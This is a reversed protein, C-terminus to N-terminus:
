NNWFQHFENVDWLYFDIKQWVKKRYTNRHEVWNVYLCTSTYKPEVLDTGIYRCRPSSIILVLLKHQYLMTIYDARAVFLLLVSHRHNETSKWSNKKTNLPHTAGARTETVTGTITTTAFYRTAWILNSPLNTRVYKDLIASMTLIVTYKM